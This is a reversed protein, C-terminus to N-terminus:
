LIVVLVSRTHELCGSPQVHCKKVVAQLVTVCDATKKTVTAAHHAFLNCFLSSADPCMLERGMGTRPDTQKVIVRFSCTALIEKLRIFSMVLLHRGVSMRFNEQSLKGRNSHQTVQMMGAWGEAKTHVARHSSCTNIVANKNSSTLTDARHTSMVAAKLAAATLLVYACLRELTTPCWVAILSM